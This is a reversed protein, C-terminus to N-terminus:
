IEKVFNGSGFTSSEKEYKLYRQYSFTHVFNFSINVNDLHSKLAYLTMLCAIKELYCKLLQRSMWICAEHWAIDLMLASQVVSNNESLKIDINHVKKIARQMVKNLKGLDSM